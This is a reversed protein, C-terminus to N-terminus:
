GVEIIKWNAYWRSDEPPSEPGNQMSHFDKLRPRIEKEWINEIQNFTLASGGPKLHAYEELLKRAEKALHQVVDALMEEGARRDSEIACDGLAFHPPPEDSAPLRSIDVCDPELAWLLSTEGRGAHGGMGGQDKFRARETGTGIHSYIRASVYQQLIELLIPIDLRHPGSHGSFIIVGHFGLADIARVHYCLNRFFLWPPVATLWPRVEGVKKQAWAGYIGVEHCNWYEPPAVIGGFTRAVRCLTGHARIADMGVANQPGHPECLGYPLYAIPCEEFAAELEDSFMREWRVERRKM